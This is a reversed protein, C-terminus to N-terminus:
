LLRGVMQFLEERTLAFWIPRGHPCHPNELQFAGRIIEKAGEPSLIEGDKVASKCAYQALLKKELEFLSSFPQLLEEEILHEKGMWFSGLSLIYLEKEREEIEIGIAKLGEQLAIIKKPEPHELKIPSLLPQRKIPAKRFQEFLIREHAAHQDIIYFTKQREVLLFLNFIQGHYTFDDTKPSSQGGELSSQGGEYTTPQECLPSYIEKPPTKPLPAPKQERIRQALKLQKEWLPKSKTSLHPIQSSPSPPLKEFLSPTSTVAKPTSTVPQISALQRITTVIAHHIEDKNKVKVERKAPHINFDVLSPDIKIFVFCYPFCVSQLFEKYGYEVAQIFAYEVIQRNNLFIRIFKKDRRYFGSDSGVVTLSFREEKSEVLRLSEAPLQGNLITTVREKLSSEPYFSKLKDNVFLRFAIHPHAIVKETLINQCATSEGSPTSLFKKRAPINYFLERVCVTTGEATAIKEIYPEHIDNSTLQYASNSGKPCSRITLRSCAAISALAEGRFGLTSITEMDQSTAIKSTAHPLISRQLDEKDMGCGNDIVTIEEIGGELLRVEITTAGSDIANDLLERLVSAPRDIVEGAAIKRSVEPPLLNIRAM